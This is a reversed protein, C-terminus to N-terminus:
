SPVAVNVAPSKVHLAQRSSEVATKVIRVLRGCYADTRWSLAASQARKGTEALGDRDTCLAAVRHSLGIVDSYDATYIGPGDRGFFDVAGVEGSSSALTPCSCAAAEVITMGYADHHAPHFNLVSRRYLDCMEEASLFSDIIRATRHLFASTPLQM